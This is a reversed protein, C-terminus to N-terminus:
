REATICPARDVVGTVLDHVDDAAGLSSGMAAGSPGILSVLLAVASVNAKEDWRQRYTSLVIDLCQGDSAEGGFREVFAVPDSQFEDKLAEARAVYIRCRDPLAGDCTMVVPHQGNFNETTFYEGSDPLQQLPLLCVTAVLVGASLGGLGAVFRDTPEHRGAVGAWVLALFAAVVTVLVSVLAALLGAAVTLAVGFFTSMAGSRKSRWLYIGTGALLIAGLAVAWGKGGVEALVYASGGIPLYRLWIWKEGELLFSIGAFIAAVVATWALVSSV